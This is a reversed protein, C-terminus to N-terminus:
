TPIPMTCVLDTAASPSRNTYGVRNELWYGPKRLQAPKFVAEGHVWEVREVVLESTLQAPQAWAGGALVLAAALLLSARRQYTSRVAVGVPVHRGASYM